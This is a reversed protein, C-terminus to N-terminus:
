DGLGAAPNLSVVEAPPGDIELGSLQGFIRRAVPAASTAGFGAQEMVVATAYRPDHTPGFGVFLANDQKRGVQATGTKGAIGWQQLPFGAFANYATGEPSSVVGALGNVMPERIHPPIEVRAAVRPKIERVVEGDQTQIRLAINPSYRTGGNAYTGYANAIQIPTVALAGQGIALNTNQGMYWGGEPWAQPNEEHLQAALAPTIVRGKTESPLPVGSTSGFGLLAAVDQIPTDGFRRGEDEHRRSWFDAGLTYFFVDSSVTMARQVGVIGFAKSGANRKICGRGTCDGPLTYVGQDNVRFGTDILGTRLAADATVLKWTSGPAYQGQIARNTFPAGTNESFLMEAEAKSIGNALDPLPFTPYSAMAVVTGEKTDLVVAAGADAVLPRGDDEFIRGRASELGERLGNEAVRQVDLDISLVVDYGQKPPTRNVVRVPKGEANVEIELVGDEGRLDKEFMREVGAKGIQDGLDYQGEFEKMEVDTIEGVYGLVHAALDGHPYTRVAVRKAVVAPFEDQRERLRILAQESVDEAIPVPTYPSVRRDDLRKGLEEPSRELLRSLNLLLAEVESEQLKTRDVAVINSARNDVLIRGERDLIRGRPAPEKVIRTANATAQLKLEPASLVQLFWLRTLLAAFMSIAVVGLVGLRLRPSDQTM